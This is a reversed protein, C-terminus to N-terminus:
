LNWTQPHGKISINLHIAYQSTVKGNVSILEADFALWIDRSFGNSDVIIVKLYGLLQAIQRSDYCSRRTDAIIFITSNNGRKLEMFKELFEM